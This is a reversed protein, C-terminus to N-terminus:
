EKPKFNMLKEFAESPDLIGQRVLLKIAEMTKMLDDLVRPTPRKKLLELEKNATILMESKSQGDRNLTAIQKEFEVAKLNGKALWEQLEDIRADRVNATKRLEENEEEYMQVLEQLDEATPEPAEAGEAISVPVGEMPEQALAEIPATWTPVKALPPVARLLPAVVPPAEVDLHLKDFSGLTDDNIAIFRKGASKAIAKVRKRQGDSMLKVVAIVYDVKRVDCNPTKDVNVVRVTEIGAEALRPKIKKESHDQPYNSFLIATRM